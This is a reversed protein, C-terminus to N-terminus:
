ERTLAKGNLRELMAQAATADDVQQRLDAIRSEVALELAHRCVESVNLDLLRATEALEESLYISLRTGTM